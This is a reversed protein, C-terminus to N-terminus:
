LQIRFATNQQQQQQQQVSAISKGDDTSKAATAIAAMLLLVLILITKNFITTSHYYYRRQKPMDSLFTGGIFLSNKLVFDDVCSVLTERHQSISSFPIFYTISNDVITQM